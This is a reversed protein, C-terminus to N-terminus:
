AHRRARIELNLLALQLEHARRVTMREARALMDRETHIANLHVATAALKRKILLRRLFTKM